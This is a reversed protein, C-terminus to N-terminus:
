RVLEVRGAFEKAQAETLQVEQGAPIEKGDLTIAELTRYTKTNM